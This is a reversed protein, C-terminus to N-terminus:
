ISNVEDIYPEFLEYVKVTYVGEEDPGKMTAITDPYFLPDNYLTILKKARQEDRTDIVKCLKKSMHSNM